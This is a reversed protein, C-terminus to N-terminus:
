LFFIQRRRADNKSKSFDCGKGHDQSTRIELSFPTLPLELGLASFLLQITGSLGIRVDLMRLFIGIFGLAIRKWIPKEGISMM